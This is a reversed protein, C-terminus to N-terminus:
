SGARQAMLSCVAGTLPGNRRENTLRGWSLCADHRIAVVNVLGKHSLIIEARNNARVDVNLAGQQFKDLSTTQWQPDQLKQFGLIFTLHFDGNEKAEVIRKSGREAGEAIKAIPKRM